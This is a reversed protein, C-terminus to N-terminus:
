NTRLKDFVRRLLSRRQMSAITPPLSSQPGPHAPSGTSAPLPGDSAPPASLDDHLLDIAVAASYFAFVDASPLELLQITQGLTFTQRAWLAAISMAGPTVVLRTFNPWERLACPTDLPTGLPLRGRSAGLALKWLLTDLPTMDPHSINYYPDRVFVFSAQTPLDERGAYPRLTDEGENVIATFSTPYIAITPWPGHIHVAQGSDAAQRWATAVM